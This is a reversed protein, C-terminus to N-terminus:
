GTYVLVDPWGAWHVCRPPLRARTLSRGWGWGHCRPCSHLDHALVLRPAPHRQHGTELGLVAQAVGPAALTGLPGARAPTGGEWAM